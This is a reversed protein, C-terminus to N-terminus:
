NARDSQAFIWSKLAITIATMASYEKEVISGFKQSEIIAGGNYNEAYREASFIKTLTHTSTRGRTGPL